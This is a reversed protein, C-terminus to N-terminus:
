RGQIGFLQQIMDNSVSVVQSCAQFGRQILILDGFQQALDVNSAELRKSLVTGMGETGSAALHARANGPDRFLGNGVQELVQADRFDALAVAGVTVTQENSYTLKIQGHEDVTANVLAGTTHGDPEAALSNQSGSNVSTAASFDLTVSLPAVGDPTASVTFQTTSPDIKGDTFKVTSTGLTTGDEDTVTVTWDTTTGTTSGRTFAAKWVHKGGLSDYVVIDSIAADPNDSSLNGSLAIKTTAVPLNTRMGDVNVAIPHGEADLVALQYGTGQESIFGDKDVAFQGTRTYFTNGDKLLVLFGNGQIALDLDNETQRLDGQSFNLASGIHVGSGHSGFTGGLFNLGGGFNFQDSFSVSTAKFGLTNMNAVNNSITQLGSTYANMGSLGIYIGGLM